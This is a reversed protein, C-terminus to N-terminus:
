KLRITAGSTSESVMGIANAPTYDKPNSKILRRHLTNIRMVKKFKM